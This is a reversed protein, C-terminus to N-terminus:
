QIRNRFFVKLIFYILKLRWIIKKFFSHTSKSTTSSANNDHRRYLILPINIFNIKGILTVVLGIYWDHMPIDKPFPLVHNLIKKNFAMTCGVFSNKFLNSFLGYRFFSDGYLSKSLMSLNKDVVIADTLVLDCLELEKLCISVKNKLWIDDQDALFIVDGSAHLLSNNFNSVVGSKHSQIFVKIRVDNLLKVVRLTGDISCDDSIIVEDDEGLQVLISELQEKIYKEGNYTAMCVSIKM